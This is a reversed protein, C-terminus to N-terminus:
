ERGDSRFRQVPVGYMQQHRTDIQSQWYDTSTILIGGPKLIRSAERFYEKPDVGHEIVSLCSIVDFTASDYDTPTIDGYKYTIPGLKKQEGFVINIGDLRRYEYPCLWPLM